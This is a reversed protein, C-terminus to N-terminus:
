YDLLMPSGTRQEPSEPIVDDDNDVKMVQSEQTDQTEYTTHPSQPYAAQANFADEMPADVGCERRLQKPRDSLPLKLARALDVDENWDARDIEHISDDRIAVQRRGERRVPSSQAHRDVRRAPGHLSEQSRKLEVIQPSPKRASQSQKRAPIDLDQSDDVPIPDDYSGSRARAHLLSSLAPQERPTKSPSSAKSAMASPMRLKGDSRVGSDRNQLPSTLDAPQRTPQKSRDSTGDFPEYISPDHLTKAPVRVKPSNARKVPSQRPQRPTETPEITLAEATSIANAYEGRLASAIIPGAGVESKSGPAFPSGLRPAGPPTGTKGAIAGSEPMAGTDASAASEPQTGAPDTQEVAPSAEKPATKTPPALTEKSSADKKAKYAERRAGNRADNLMFILNRIEERMKSPDMDPWDSKASMDFRLLKKTFEDPNIFFKRLYGLVYLGCDSYNDQTPIQASKPYLGRSDIEVDMGRKDRGEAELWQRLARTAATRTQGLSDLMMIVPKDPDRPPPKSNHKKRPIQKAKGPTPNILTRESTAPLAAAMSAKNEITRENPDSQERSHTENGGATEANRDILDLENAEGFLHADDNDDDKANVAPSPAVTTADVQDLGEPDIDSSLATPADPAQLGAPGPDM